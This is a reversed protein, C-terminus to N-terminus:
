IKHRPGIERAYTIAGVWRAGAAKLEKACIELTAGSTVVDDVLLIRQAKCSEASFANELNVRRERLGLKAQQKTNRIRDMAFSNMRLDGMAEAILQAQNFGRGSERYWHIPIPIMLDFGPVDDLLCSMQKGMPIALAREGSFKLQRVALGAIGHYDAFSRLYDLSVM